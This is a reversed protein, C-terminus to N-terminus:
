DQDEALSVMAAARNSFGQEPVGERGFDSNFGGPEISQYSELCMWLNQADHSILSDVDGAM